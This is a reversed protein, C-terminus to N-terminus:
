GALAAHIRWAVDPDNLYGAIGHRNDTHNQVDTENEV